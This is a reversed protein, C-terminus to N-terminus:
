EVDPPPTLDGTDEAAAALAPARGEWEMREEHLIKMVVYAATFIVPGAFLGILGFVQVGGMLALFLALTSMEIGRKLILPRAINDSFGVVIAGWAALFIAKGYAGNLLLVIIGPVLVLATGVLPILSTFAAVMGWFVPSRLGVFAFAMGVLAGQLLSIIVMGYLNTVIANKLIDLLHRLRQEEMPLYMLLRREFVDGSQFLFFMVFLTFVLNGLIAALNGFISTLWSLAGASAQEAKDLLAAKLEPAEMGTRQAVWGVPREVLHNFYEGWGGENRSQEAMVRYLDRMEGVVTTILFVMPILIVVLLLLICVLAAASSNTIRKHILSYVPQFSITLIVAAILADMFPRMVVYVGWALVALLVALFLRSLIKTRDGPTM